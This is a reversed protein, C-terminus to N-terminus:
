IHALEKVRDAVYAEGGSTLRRFAYKERLSADDRGDVHKIAFEGFMRHELDTQDLISISQHRPDRLILSMLRALVPEEGEIVHFFTEGDSYLAGTVGMEANRQLSSSLIDGVGGGGSRCSPVSAYAYSTLM